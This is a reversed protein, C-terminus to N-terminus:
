IRYASPTLHLIDQRYKNQLIKLKKNNYNMCRGNPDFINGTYSNVDYSRVHIRRGSSVEVWFVSFIFYSSDDPDLYTNRYPPNSEVAGEEIHLAFNWKKESGVSSFVLDPELAAFVLARAQDITLRQLKEDESYANSTCTMAFLLSIVIKMFGAMIERQSSRSASICGSEHFVCADELLVSSKRYM